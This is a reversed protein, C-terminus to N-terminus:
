GKERVRLVVVRTPATLSAGVEVVDIADIRHRVAANKTTKLAKVEAAARDGKMALLRGGPALLPLCWPVLKELPAVARVVITPAGGVIPRVARDEARGRVVRVRDSLSLDTVVQTLFEARRQLPEVLDVSVSPRALALPIGPLGAGSGVDVTRTGDVLLEGVAACNLLHREWLRSVERPGILGRTVGAGALWQAYRLALAARGDTDPFYAAAAPPAPPVAARDPGPDTV